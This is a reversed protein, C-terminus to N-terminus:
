IEFSSGYANDFLACTKGTSLTSTISTSLYHIDIIRGNLAQYELTACILVIPRLTVVLVEASKTGLLIIGVM